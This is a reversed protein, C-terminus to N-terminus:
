AASHTQYIENGGMGPCASNSQGLGPAFSRTVSCCLLACWLQSRQAQPLSRCQLSSCNSVTADSASMCPFRALVAAHVTHAAHVEHQSDHLPRPHGEHLAAMYKYKGSQNNLLAVLSHCFIPGDQSTVAAAMAGDLGDDASCTFWLVSVCGVDTQLVGAQAAQPGYCRCGFCACKAM